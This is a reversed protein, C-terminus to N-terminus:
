GNEDTKIRSLMANNQEVLEYIRDIALDYEKLRFILKEKEALGPNKDNDVYYSFIIQGKKNEIFAITNSLANEISNTEAIKMNILMTLNIRTTLNDKFM